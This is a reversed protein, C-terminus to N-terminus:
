RPMEKYLIRDLATKTLLNKPVNALVIDISEFAKFCDERGVNDPPTRIYPRLREILNVLDSIIQENTM